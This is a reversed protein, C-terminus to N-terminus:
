SNREIVTNESIQSKQKSVDSEGINRWFEGLYDVFIM